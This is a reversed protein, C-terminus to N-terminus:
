ILRDAAPGAALDSPGAAPGDALDSPGAASRGAASYLRNLICRGQKQNKSPRCSNRCLQVFKTDLFQRIINVSCSSEVQNTVEEIRYETLERKNGM